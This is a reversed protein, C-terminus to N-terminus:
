KVTQILRISSEGTQTYLFGLRQALGPNFLKLNIISTGEIILTHAGVSKAENNMTRLLLSLSSSSDSSILTSISKTYTGGSLSNTSYMYYQGAAYMDDTISPFISAVEDTATAIKAARGYGGFMNYGGGGFDQMIEIHSSNMLRFSRDLSSEGANSFPNDRRERYEAMRNYHANRILGFLRVGDPDYDIAEVQGVTLTGTRSVKAGPLFTTIGAGRGRFRDTLWSAAREWWSPRPGLATNPTSAGGVFRKENYDMGSGMGDSFGSGTNTNTGSGLGSLGDM